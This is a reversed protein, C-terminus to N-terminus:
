TCHTTAREPTGPTGRQEYTLRGRGAKLRLKAAIALRLVEQIAGQQDLGVVGGERGAHTADAVRHV